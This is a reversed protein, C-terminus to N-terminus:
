VVEKVFGTQDKKAKGKATLGIVVGNGQDNFRLDTNDGSIVKYGLYTEPLEKRFVVAVNGGLELIKNAIVSNCESMSFTLHYNSPLSKGIFKVMRTPFKTYDYFQVDPFMEIITTGNVQIRNWDLDSTGNLRVVVKKNERIAKRQMAKIDKVLDNMFNTNDEFFRKTKKIRAIQTSTFQGRGATNLCASKCGESAAGCVNNGSLSAPAFHLIATLYNVTDNKATKANAAAPTLVKM